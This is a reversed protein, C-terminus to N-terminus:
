WLPWSCLRPHWLAFSHALSMCCPKAWSSTIPFHASLYLHPICKIRLIHTHTQTQTCVHVPTHPHAHLDTMPKWSCDSKQIIELSIIIFGAIIFNSPCREYWRNNQYSDQHYINCTICLLINYSHGLINHFAGLM